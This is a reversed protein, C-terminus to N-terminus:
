GIIGEQIANPIRSVGPFALGLGQYFCSRIHIIALTVLLSIHRAIRLLMELGVRNDISNHPLSTEKSVHRFRM